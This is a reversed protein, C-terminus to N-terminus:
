NTKRLFCRGVVTSFGSERLSDGPLDFFAFFLIGVVYPERSIALKLKGKKRLVRNESVKLRQVIDDPRISRHVQFISVFMGLYIRFRNIYLIDIFPLKGLLLIRVSLFFQCVSVIRNM